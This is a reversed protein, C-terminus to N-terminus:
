IEFFLYTKRELVRNLLLKESLVAVFVNSVHANINKAKSYYDADQVAYCEEELWGQDTEEHAQWQQDRQHGTYHHVETADAKVAVYSAHHDYDVRGM